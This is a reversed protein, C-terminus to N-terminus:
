RNLKIVISVNNTVVASYLVNGIILMTMAAKPNDKRLVRNIGLFLGTGVVKSAILVENSVNNFLPNAERAGLKLGQITSIADVTNLAVYSIELGTYATNYLKPHKIQGFTPPPKLLFILFLIIVVILLWALGEDIFRQYKKM